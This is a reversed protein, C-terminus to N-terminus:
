TPFPDLDLAIEGHSEERETFVRVWIWKVVRTRDDVWGRGETEEAM